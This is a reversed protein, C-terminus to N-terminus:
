CKKQSVDSIRTRCDAPLEEISLEGRNTEIAILIRAAMEGSQVWQRPECLVNRIIATSVDCRRSLAAISAGGKALYRIEDTARRRAELNAAILEAPTPEYRM